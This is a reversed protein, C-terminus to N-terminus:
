FADWSYTNKKPCLTHMQFQVSITDGIFSLYVYVIGHMHQIGLEICYRMSDNHHDGLYINNEEWKYIFFSLCLRLVSMARHQYMVSGSKPGLLDWELSAGKGMANWKLRECTYVYMDTGIDKDLEKYVNTSIDVCTDM